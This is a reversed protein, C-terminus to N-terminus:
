NSMASFVEIAWDYHGALALERGQWYLDDDPLIGSETKICKKKKKNYIQGKACKKVTGASTPPTGPGKAAQAELVGAAAVAGAAIVAMWLKTPRMVIEMHLGGSARRDYGRSPLLALGAKTFSSLSM